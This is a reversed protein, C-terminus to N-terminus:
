GDAKRRLKDLENQQHTWFVDAWALAEAGAATLMGMMAAAGAKCMRRLEFVELALGILEPDAHEAYWHPCHDWLFGLRGWVDGWNAFRWLEPARGMDNVAIDDKHLGEAAALELFGQACWRYGNETPEIAAGCGMVLGSDEIHEHGSVLGLGELWGFGQM